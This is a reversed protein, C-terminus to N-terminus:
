TGFLLMQLADVDGCAWSSARQDAFAEFFAAHIAHTWAEM